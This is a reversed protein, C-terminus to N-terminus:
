LVEDIQIVSLPSALPPFYSHSFATHAKPHRCLDVKRMDVSVLLSTYLAATNEEVSYFGPCHFCITYISHVTGVVSICYALDM